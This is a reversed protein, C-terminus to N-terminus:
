GPIYYYFVEYRRPARKCGVGLLAAALVGLLVERRGLIPTRQVLSGATPLSRYKSYLTTMPRRMTLSSTSALCTSDATVLAWRWWAAREPQVCCEDVRVVDRAM